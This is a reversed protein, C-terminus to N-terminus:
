DVCDNVFQSPPSAGHAAGRARPGVVGDSRRGPLLRLGALRPRRCHDHEVNELSAALFAFMAVVATDRIVHAFASVYSHEFCEPPIADRIQKKTPLKDKTVLGAAVLTARARRHHAAPRLPEANLFDEQKPPQQGGKGMKSTQRAPSGPNSAPAKSAHTAEVFARPNPRTQQQTARLPYRPVSGSCHNTLTRLQTARTHLRILSASSVAM